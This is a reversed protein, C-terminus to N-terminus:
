KNNDGVIVSGGAKISGTVVNKSNIINISKDNAAMAQLQEYMAKLQQELEPEKKIAKAIAIEVADTNLKDNPADKLDEIIDKPEGDDKLFIPRLWKVTEDTFDGFFDSLAGDAKIKNSLYGVVTSIMAMSTVSEM